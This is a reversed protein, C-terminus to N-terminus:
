LESTLCRISLSFTESRMILAICFVVAAMKLITKKTRDEIKRMIFRATFNLDETAKLREM